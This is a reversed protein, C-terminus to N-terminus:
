LHNRIVHIAYQSSAPQFCYKTEGETGGEQNSTKSRQRSGKSVPAYFVQVPLHKLVEGWGCQMGSVSLSRQRTTWKGRKSTNVTQHLDNIASTLRCRSYSWFIYYASRKYLFRPETELSSKTQEVSSGTSTLSISLLLTPGLFHLVHENNGHSCYFRASSFLFFPHAVGAVTAQQAKRPTLKALNRTNQLWRRTYSL